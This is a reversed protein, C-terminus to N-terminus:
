LFGMQSLDLEGGPELTQLWLRKGISTMLGASTGPPREIGSSAVLRDAQHRHRQGTTERSASCIEQAVQIRAHAAFVGYLSDETLINMQHASLRLAVCNKSLSASTQATSDRRPHRLAEFGFSGGSRVMKKREQGVIECCSILQVEGEVLVFMGDGESGETYVVMGPSWEALEAVRCLDILVDVELNALEPVKQAVASHRVPSILIM